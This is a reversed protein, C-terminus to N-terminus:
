PRAESGSSTADSRTLGLFVRELEGASEELGRVGIGAGVLRRVLDERGDGRLRVEVHWVGMTGERLVVGEAAVGGLAAEIAGREGRLVLALRQGGELRDALEQETGEAVLRGQHLVLIRDCTQAIESLIHSSILVTAHEQLSRVVGRMEVIQVPDLGGIPEDLIVLDPRHVITLAIGVRKRYGFSLESIVSDAVDQIRCVEMARGLAEEVEKRSRGKLQGAWRLFAAVRMERHLPPEDPLFGIRRRLADPASTADVGAIRVGGASPLQLGALIRLMTSKGAGNLGLFGVIERDRIRFSVDDLARHAGYYHTLHDVDIM